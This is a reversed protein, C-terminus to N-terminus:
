RTRPRNLPKIEYCSIKYYESDSILLSVDGEGEIVLPVKRPEYNLGPYRLDISNTNRWFAGVAFCDGEQCSLKLQLGLMESFDVGYLKIKETKLIKNEETEGETADVTVHSPLGAVYSVGRAIQPLLDMTHVKSNVPILLKWPQIRCTYQTGSNAWVVSTFLSSAALLVNVQKSNFNM